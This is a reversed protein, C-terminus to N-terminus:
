LLYESLKEIILKNGEPFEFQSFEDAACWRVPQGEAGRPEGEFAKVVWIDLLVHKHPYNFDFTFWPEAEKVTIGIEESLERKL